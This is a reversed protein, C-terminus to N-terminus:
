PADRSLRDLVNKTIKIVQPDKGRLGHSWDTSGCTFVTGGKQYVGLVAHGSHDPSPWQDYWYSDGPAWRAPCTALITFSKPTGDHHTPFPLGKRWEIECGDCEYGVITDKAGFEDNRKLHTDTFVWHEPRQVTYAGKGDMFQGHSLHYGGHLFGVGTLENEPRKVLHHSWLTSLLRHDKKPYLPDQNFWQKWCTLARDGAEWRVQWCVSNGSFFAANGGDAIFKELHDRMPASWYEDHGVSLILRYHQLIEPRLALDMNSAYELIYGNSEAWAVFPEEWKNFLSRPPRNFSVRHGQLKARGHFSYLGSGGWNNYANYTNVSLQLLIKSTSGPHAARLIFYCGGEATRRNRHVFKGGHDEVRLSVEYYGSKWDAPITMKFGVPWKCGHSSANEPIKHEAGRIGSKSFVSETKAGHRKIQIEFQRASTSTHLQLEEGPAYSLLGSYGEIFLSRPDDAGLNSLCTLLLGPLLIAKKM